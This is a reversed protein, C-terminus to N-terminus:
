FTMTCPSAASCSRQRDCGQRRRQDALLVPLFPHDLDPRHRRLHASASLEYNHWGSYDGVAYDSEDNYSVLAGLSLSLKEM